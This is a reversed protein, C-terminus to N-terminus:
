LCAGGHSALTQIKLLSPTEANQDPQDRVGSRMIQRGQGGLTSRNYAHAVESLRTHYELIQPTTNFETTDPQCVSLVITGSVSVPFVPFGYLLNICPQACHSVGTIRASQSASTPPDGSILLELGAQGDHHFGMQLELVQSASAPPKSSDLLQLGTHAIYRSRTKPLSFCLIAQVPSTSNATLQSQAVVSWGPRCLSVGDAVVNLKNQIKLLSPTESHQGPQDRVRVEPSGGVEAEWLAPIVSMLWRARGCVTNKLIADQKRLDPTRFWSPWCSSVGVGSFICFDALHPPLHRHDWSSLLSLCSFRKFRVTPPQLSGLNVGSCDLRSLLVLSMSPDRTNLLFAGTAHSSRQSSLDGNSCPWPPSVPQFTVVPPRPLRLPQPCGGPPAMSCRQGQERSTPHSWPPRKSVLHRM